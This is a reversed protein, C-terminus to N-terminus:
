CKRPWRHKAPSISAPRVRNQISCRVLRASSRDSPQAITLTLLSPAPLLPQPIDPRTRPRLPVTGRASQSESRHRAPSAPSPNSRANRLAAHARGCRRQILKSQRPSSQCPNPGHLTIQRSRHTILSNIRRNAMVAAGLKAASARTGVVRNVKSGGFSREASISREYKAVDIVSEVPSEFLLKSASMRRNLAIFPRSRKSKVERGRGSGGRTQRIIFPIRGTPPTKAFFGLPGGLM